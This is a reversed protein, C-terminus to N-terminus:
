AGRVVGFLGEVFSSQSTTRNERMARKMKIAGVSNYLDSTIHIQMTKNLFVFRRPGFRRPGGHVLVATM